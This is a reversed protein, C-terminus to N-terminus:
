GPPSGDATNTGDGQKWRRRIALAVFILLILITTFDFNTGRLIDPSSNGLAHIGVVIFINNTLLFLMTLYIAALYLNLQDWWVDSPTEYVGGIIRHPVHAVSFIVGAVLGSAILAYTWRVNWSRVLLLTIQSILFVRFVLEEELANAIFQGEIFDLIYHPAHGNWEPRIEIGDNSFLFPTLQTIGWAILTWVVGWKLRGWSVGLDHWRMRGVKWALFGLLAYYPLYNLFTANVWGDTARHISQCFGTPAVVLNGFASLAWQVLVVLVIFWPAVQRVGGLWSTFSPHALWLPFSPAKEKHDM